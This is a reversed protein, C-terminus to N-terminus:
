SVPLSAAFDSFAKRMAIPNDFDALCEVRIVAEGDKPDIRVSIEVIYSTGSPLEAFSAITTMGAALKPDGFTEEVLKNVAHILVIADAESGPQVNWTTVESISNQM